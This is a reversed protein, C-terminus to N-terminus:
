KLYRFIKEFIKILKSIKKEEDESTGMKIRGKIDIEFKYDEDDIGKIENIMSAPIIDEDLFKSDKLNTQRGSTIELKPNVKSMDEFIKELEEDTVYSHHKGSGVETLKIHNIEVLDNYFESLTEEEINFIERFKLKELEAEILASNIEDFYDDKSMKRTRQYAIFGSNFILIYGFRTYIRDKESEENQNTLINDKRMLEKAFKAYICKKLQKAYRFGIRNPPNGHIGKKNLLNVIAKLKEITVDTDEIKAIGFSM